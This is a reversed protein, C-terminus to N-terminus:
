KKSFLNSKSKLTNLRNEQRKPQEYIKDLLEELVIDVVKILDNDIDKQREINGENSHIAGNGIEKIYRLFDIDFEKTWKPANDKLIDEDLKILKQGLMGNTYGQEFLVQELAARYMAMSASNAGIEKALYAQDLYYKVTEPSNKSICGGKNQALKVMMYEDDKKYIVIITISSCQRCKAVYFLPSLRNLVIKIDSEDYDLTYPKGRGINVNQVDMLRNELCKACFMNYQVDTYFNYREHAERIKLGGGLGTVSGTSAIREVHISMLKLFDVLENNM